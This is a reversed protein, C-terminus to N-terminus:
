FRKGKIYLSASRHPLANEAITMTISAATVVNLTTETTMSWYMTETGTGRDETTSYSNEGNKRLIIAEQGPLQLKVTRDFYTLTFSKGLLAKTRSNWLKPDSADVDTIKLTQAHVTATGIILLCVLLIKKFMKLSHISTGLLAKM